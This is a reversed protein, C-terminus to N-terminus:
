RFEGKLGKNGYSAKGRTQPLYKGLAEEETLQRNTIKSGKYVVTIGEELMKPDNTKDFRTTSRRKLGDRAIARGFLFTLDTVM